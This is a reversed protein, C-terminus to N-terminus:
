EAARAAEAVADSIEHNAAVNQVDDHDELTEVLDLIRRANKPDTVEIRNKPLTMVEAVDPKIKKAELAKSVADFSQPATTVEYSGEVTQMDEAGADLVLSMLEDESIAGKPISIVGKKEFMWAVSGANGIKGGKQEFIKRIEPGTRNKNDTLCEVLFAVGGPGIAEFTSEVIEQGPLEGAGKKIAREITDKPMNAARAKELAYKLQLNSDPEKGGTRVAVMIAKAWRSFERGKRADSAAKKHKINAAHSHGSM